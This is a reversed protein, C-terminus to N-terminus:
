SRGLEELLRERALITVIQTCKGLARRVAEREVEPVVETIEPAVSELADELAQGAYEPCDAEVSDDSGDKLYSLGLAVKSFNPM